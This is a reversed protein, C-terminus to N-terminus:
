GALSDLLARSAERASEQYDRPPSLRALSQDNFSLGVVGYAVTWVRRKEPAPFELAIQAAVADVTESVLATMLQRIQSDTEAVAILAEVLLVDTFSDRSPPPFLWEILDDIRSEEGLYSPLDRLEGRYRDVLRRALAVILDGRNGIYHRIISQKVGAEVAVQELSTGNLGSRVICVEFADLIQETREETLDPRPM